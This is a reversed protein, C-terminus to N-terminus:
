PNARRGPHKRVALRLNGVYRDLGEVHVLEKKTARALARRYTEDCRVGCAALADLLLRALHGGGRDWDVLLIVKRHRAALQEVVNFVAVAGKVRIIEGGLGLARLAAEDKEGEVLVPFSENDLVLDELLAEVEELRQLASDQSM